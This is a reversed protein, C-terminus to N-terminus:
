KVREFLNVLLNIDYDFLQFYDTVQKVGGVSPLLVAVQGGVDQAIKNPARLDFYPEVLILKIGERKMTNIVELTHVPSPPIGPKPEVYDVVVLGFHDCFNPWSRHYTVVKHGRYPAMKAEWGKEATALRKDFDAYHQAFAAANAPQMETFKAALAKAIRRGNDPDLWYHPNGLPHVDGMARTVQGTPIELIQCSQSMDLYGPAGVQIRANRSQTILPPLWGIELQLGVVVLLDAKQLKLLFSPKPEVFHPDQYGMAISDAIILDGGVERALSALDQTATMVNLKSAAQTIGAAATSLLVASAFLRKLMNKRM